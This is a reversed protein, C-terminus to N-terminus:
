PAAPSTWESVDMGEEYDDNLPEVGPSDRRVATSIVSTSRTKRSSASPATFKGDKYKTYARARDRNAKAIDFLGDTILSDRPRIPIVSAGRKQQRVPSASSLAALFLISFVTRM